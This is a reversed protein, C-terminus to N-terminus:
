PEAVRPGAVLYYGYSAVLGLHLLYLLAFMVDFPFGWVTNLLVKFLLLLVYLTFLSLLIARRASSEDTDRAFLTLVGTCLVFIGLCRAILSGDGAVEFGVLSACFVPFLMFGAGFFFAYIYNVTFVTKLTM